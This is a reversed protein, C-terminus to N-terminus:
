LLMEVKNEGMNERMDAYKAVLCTGAEHEVADGSEIQLTEKIFWFHHADLDPQDIMHPEDLAQWAEPLHDLVTQRLHNEMLAGYQKLYALEAESMENIKERMYLPHDELKKLRCTLWDSLVFKARDLDMQLITGLLVDESVKSSELQDVFDQQDEMKAKLDEVTEDDYRLLEPCHREQKWYHQLRAYLENPTKCHSLSMWSM